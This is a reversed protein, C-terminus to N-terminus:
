RTTGCATGATSACCRDVTSRHVCYAVGHHYIWTMAFGILALAILMFHFYHQQDDASRVIQPLAQYGAIQLLGHVVFGVLLLGIATAAGSLWFRQDM